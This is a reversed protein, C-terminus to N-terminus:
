KMLSKRRLGRAGSAERDEALRRARVVELVEVAEARQGIVPAELPLVEEAPERPPCVGVQRLRAVPDVGLQREREAVARRGGGGSGLRTGARGTAAACGAARGAARAATPASTARAIPISGSDASRARVELQGSAGDYRSARAARTRRAASAFSRQSPAAEAGDAPADDGLHQDAQQGAVRERVETDVRGPRRGEGPSAAPVNVSLSMM